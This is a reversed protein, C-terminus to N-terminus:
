ILFPYLDLMMIIVTMVKSKRRLLGVAKVGLEHFVLVESTEVARTM